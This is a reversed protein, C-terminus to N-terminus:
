ERTGITLRCPVEPLREGVSVRSMLEKLHSVSIPRQGNKQLQGAKQWALGGPGSFVEEMDGEKTLRVVILHVAEEAGLGVMRGQTAKIQVQRGDWTEADHIGHSARHLRLGYRHAVLVEGLSGVLHGDPTFHRDPFLRELESALGYLRRVIAPVQDTAPVHEETQVPERPLASDGSPTM